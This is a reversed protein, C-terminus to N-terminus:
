NSPDAGLARMVMATVRKAYDPDLIEGAIIVRRWIPGTIVDLAIEMDTDPGIEDRYIARQLIVQAGDRDPGPVRPM